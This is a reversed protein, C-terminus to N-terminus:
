DWDAGTGTIVKEGHQLLPTLWIRESVIIEQNNRHNSLHFKFRSVDKGLFGCTKDKDQTFTHTELWSEGTLDNRLHRTFSTFRTETILPFCRVVVTVYSLWGDELILNTYPIFMSCTYAFNCYGYSNHTYQIHISDDKWTISYNYGGDRKYFLNGPSAQDPDTNGNQHWISSWMNQSWQVKSNWKWKLFM